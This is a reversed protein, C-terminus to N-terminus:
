VKFDQEFIDIYQQAIDVYNHYEEVFKRGQKGWVDIEDKRNIIEEIVSCIQDVDPCINFVPNYKYGYEKNAIPEAGGMVIKGKMLSFLGNMAISYSNADDVIVNTREVVEMYEKFPLKGACIFEAKNGYAKQMKEFAPKIFRTGKCARTVGHYFVIKNDKITNPKYDFQKLNVPIRITRRYAKNTRLPEAYEYWIPIYGDVRSLLEEEWEKLKENHFYQPASSDLFYGDVYSRYKSNSDYWYDFILGNVGAGSLYVKKNNALIFDYIPKNLWLKKSSINNAAILLVVDYGTFKKRHFMINAYNFVTKLKGLKEGVNADWRFDSPLNKFNDGDSALFVDHGLAKFGDKLCNYFGSFEGFLLIKM